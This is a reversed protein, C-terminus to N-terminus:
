AAQANQRTDFRRVEGIVRPSLHISRQVQQWDDHLDFLKKPHVSMKTPGLSDDELIEVRLAEDDIQLPTMGFSPETTLINKALMKKPVTMQKTQRSLKEAVDPPLFFTSKKPDQVMGETYKFDNYGDPELILISSGDPMVFLRDGVTGSPSAPLLDIAYALQGSDELNHMWDRIAQDIQDQMNRYDSESKRIRECTRGLKLVSKWLDNYPSYEATKEQSIRPMESMYKIIIGM